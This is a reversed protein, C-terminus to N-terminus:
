GCVMVYPLRSTSTERAAMGLYVIAKMRRLVNM